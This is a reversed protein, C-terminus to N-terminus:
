RRSKNTIVTKMQAFDSELDSFWSLLSKALKETSLAMNKSRRAKLAFEYISSPKNLKEDFGFLECVKQGFEFKTVAQESGVQLTGSLGAKLMSDLTLALSNTLIPNFRVDYVLPTEKGASMTKYIREFFSQKEEINISYINTRIILHDDLIRCVKKEAEVESEGYANIPDIQDEESADINVAAATHLVSNPQFDEFLASFKNHDNLDLGASTISDFGVHHSRYYDLTEYIPSLEVVSTCGLLGSAGTVLLRNKERM